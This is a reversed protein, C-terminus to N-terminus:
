VILCSSSRIVHFSSQWERGELRNVIRLLLLRHKCGARNLNVTAVNLNMTGFGVDRRPSVGAFNHVSLTHFTPVQRWFCIFRRGFVGGFSARKKMMKQLNDDIM